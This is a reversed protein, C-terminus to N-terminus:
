TATNLAAHLHLHLLTHARLRCASLPHWVAGQKRHKAPHSHVTDCPVCSIAAPHVSTARHVGTSDPVGRAGISLSGLVRCTPATLWHTCRQSPSPTSASAESAVTIAAEGEEGEDRQLV